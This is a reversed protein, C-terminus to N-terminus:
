LNSAEEYRISLEYMARVNEIPTEAQIHHSSAMVYGGNSGLQKIRTKIERQVDEPSGKPLTQVIDIGGHFCLRDGFERKLKEPDMEKADAQIPNLVDIGLDILDPILPYLAGDCHYMIKKNFSKAVEIIKAHHPRIFKVWMQKSIMLANQTAVDDYFYVMDIRDGGITLVRRTKEVYIDTLKEMLYVPLQPDIALDLLFKELGYLQWAVEFVSGIRYRIHYQHKQDLQALLEPLQSFNWWDPDPLTFDKLDSLTQSDELPFSALGEYNGDPNEVIQFIRGWIDLIRNDPTVQRWMRNPTSRALSSFWAIKSGPSLVADPPDCFQDYSIIRCDIEFSQLVREWAPDFFPLDDQNLSSREEQNVLKEWIDPVALFDVPTRDPIMHELARNVRERSSIM